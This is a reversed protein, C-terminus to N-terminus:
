MLLSYDSPPYRLNKKSMREAIMIRKGEEVTITKKKKKVLMQKNSFMFHHEIM